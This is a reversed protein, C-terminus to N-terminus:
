RAGPIVRPDDARAAKALDFKTPQEVPIDAPKEGRLIKDTFDAARRCLVPFNPGYSRQQVARLRL